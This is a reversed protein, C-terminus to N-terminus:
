NWPQNRRSIGHKYTAAALGALGAATGGAILSGKTGKVKYRTPIKNEKDAALREFESHGRGMQYATSGAAVAGGGLVGSYMGVRRQRDAEPDFYRAKGVASEKRKRGTSMLAAGGAAGAVLGAGGAAIAANNRSNRAQKYADYLHDRAKSEARAASEFYINSTPNEAPYMAGYFLRKGHTQFEQDAARMSSRASNLSFPKAIARRVGNLNAKSVESDAIRRGAGNCPDFYRAKGVASEKRAESKMSAGNKVDDAMALLKKRTVPVSNEEKNEEASEANEVVIRRGKGNKPDLNMRSMSKVVKQQKADGHLIHTAMLEGGLGAVELPILAKTKWGIKPSVRPRMTEPLKALKRANVVDHAAYALGATGAAAGVGSLGATVARAKRDNKGTQENM